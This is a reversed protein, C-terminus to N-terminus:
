GMIYSFLAIGMVMIVIALIKEVNTLPTYDGYGVTSLTTMVFYCCIILRRVLSEHQLENNYFFNDTHLDGSENSVILYWFCGLFYTMIGASIVLAILKYTSKADQILKIRESHSRNQFFAEIAKEIQNM